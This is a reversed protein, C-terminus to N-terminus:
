AVCGRLFAVEEVYVDSDEDHWKEDSSDIGYNIAIRDADVNAEAETKHLKVYDLLGGTLGVTLFAM